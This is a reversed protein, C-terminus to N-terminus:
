GTTGGGINKHNGEYPMFFPFRHNEGVGTGTRGARIWYRNKCAAHDNERKGSLLLWSAFKRVLVDILFRMTGKRFFSGCITLHYKGGASLIYISLM